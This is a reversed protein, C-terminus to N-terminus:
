MCSIRCSNKLGEYRVHCQIAGDDMGYAGCNLFPDYQRDCNSQCSSIRSGDPLSPAFVPTDYIPVPQLRDIISPEYPKYSSPKYGLTEWSDQEWSFKAQCSVGFLLVVCLLIRMM